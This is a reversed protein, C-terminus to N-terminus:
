ALLMASVGLHWRGAEDAVFASHATLIPRVAFRYGTIERLEEATLGEIPAIALARAIMAVDLDPAAHEALYAEVKVGAAPAAHPRGETQRAFETLAVATNKKTGDRLQPWVAFRADGLSAPRAGARLL